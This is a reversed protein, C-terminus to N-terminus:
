GETIFTSPTTLDRAIQSILNPDCPFESAVIEVMGEGDLSLQEVLYVNSSTNATAVTFVSNWVVPDAFVGNNITVTRSEVTSGGSKYFLILYTGNALPTASTVQGADGIVGNNAGSYPSATTVVRIYDGPALSLGQPTTKFTVTHTIRRRISLLYRGALLAHDRSTCYQTLDFTEIKDGTSGSQNWRINLTREQPLQNKVGERYRLIAQINNREESNIYEIRFTDELINGGTFLGKIPVAGTSITGSATTPVAPVLSFLGDSIVFNCLFFPATATIFERINVPDTIAGDFFLKNTRLFRATNAFDATKIQAASISAGAGATRDVLLHYVLDTLLNSPGTTGAEDPHFRLVPIGNDKWMRIQDITNYTRSAKLALGATTLNTYNPAGADNRVIENVYSVTHEPSSENSKQLLGSYFSVDALQSSDEFVRGEALMERNQRVQSVTVVEAPASIRFTGYNSVGFEQSLLAGFRRADLRWLQANNGLNRIVDSGPRPALRFEYQRRDPHEIRIFNYLDVPQDGTICFSISLGAWNYVNGNPDNGAPRIQLTFVSTRAFYQTMTGSSIAVRDREAAILNAPTPLSQFNCLGSARNWVQSRIGIETTDCPRSNRITAIQTRMLPYFDAPVRPGNGETSGETIVENRLIAQDAVVGVRRSTAGPGLLEVCRLLIDQTQGPQQVPLSRRIVVWLTYGIQITEGLQLLSDAAAKQSNIESNIDDVKVNEVTQGNSLIYYYNPPLENGVIRFTIIDGVTVALIDTGTADPVTTTNVGIIGMRRSYGRGVGYQGNLYVAYRDEKSGTLRVNFGYSGAIKVREMISAGQPDDEAGPIEPIPVVRWNVRYDTGNYVPSFAGFQTNSTPVYSMCFATDVSSTRTPATFVDDQSEPDGSDSTGRTGYILNAAKIRSTGNLTAPRWYFAFKHDFAADLPTNGLFIGSLDPQNIGSSGAGQEGVTFLLKFGQEIGYSLARSWVMKPSILIGGTSGTYRGFIIPVPENYNALAAISDFGSTPAFVDQGTISALERRTVQPAAKPKPTLLYSIASLALGVALNVLITTLTVPECRIDPVIDYEAPRIKAREQAQAVFQRYEDETIGAIEILEREFPLLPLKYRKVGPVLQGEGDASQHLPDRIAM